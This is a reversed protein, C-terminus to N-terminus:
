RPTVSFRRWCPWRSRCGLMTPALITFISRSLRRGTVFVDPALQAAEQGIGNDIGETVLAPLEVLRGVFRLDVFDSGEEPSQRFAEM